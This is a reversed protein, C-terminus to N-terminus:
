MRIRCVALLLFLLMENLIYKCYSVSSMKNLDLLLFLLMYHKYPYLVWGKKCLFTSSELRRYPALPRGWTCVPPTLWVKDQVADGVIDALGEEVVDQVVDGAVVSTEQNNVSYANANQTSSCADLTAGVDNHSQHSQGREDCQSWAVGFAPQTCYSPNTGVEDPFDYDFEPPLENLDMTGALWV